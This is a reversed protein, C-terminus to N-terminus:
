HIFQIRIMMLTQSDLTQTIHVFARPTSGKSFWSRRNPRGPLIGARVCYSHNIHHQGKTDIDVHKFLYIKLTYVILFHNSDGDSM